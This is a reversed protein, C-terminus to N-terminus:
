KSSSPTVVTLRSTTVSTRSLLAAIKYVWSRDGQYVHLMGIGENLLVRRWRWPEILGGLLLRLSGRSDTVSFRRTILIPQGGHELVSEYQAPTAALVYDFLDHRLPNVAQRWDKPLACAAIVRGGDAKVGSEPKLTMLHGM